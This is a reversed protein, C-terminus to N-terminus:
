STTAGIKTFPFVQHISQDSGAYNRGDDETQSTACVRVVRALARYAAAQEAGPRPRGDATRDAPPM